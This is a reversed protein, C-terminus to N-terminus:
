RGIDKKILELQNERSPTLEKKLKEQEKGWPVLTFERNEIDQMNAYAKRHPLDTREVKDLREARDGSLRIGLEKTLFIARLRAAKSVEAGFGYKATQPNDTNDLFQDLWVQGRYRIQDNLSLKSISKISYKMHSSSVDRKSAVEKISLSVISDDEFSDMMHRNIRLYYSDGKVTEIIAYYKDHMEDMLGKHMRGEIVQAESKANVIFYRGPNGGVARSITKIIDNRESLRKLSTKWDDAIRWQRPKKREALGL